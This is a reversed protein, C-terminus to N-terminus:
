SAVSECGCQQRRWLTYCGWAGVSGVRLIAAFADYPAQIQRPFSLASVADARGWTIVPEDFFLSQMFGICVLLESRSGDLLQDAVASSDGGFDTAGWAVVCRM